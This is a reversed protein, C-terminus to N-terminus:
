KEVQKKINFFFFYFIFVKVYFFKILFSPMKKKLFSVALNFKKLQFKELRTYSKSM